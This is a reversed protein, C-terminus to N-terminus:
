GDNVMECKLVFDKIKTEKGRHNRRGTPYFAKEGTIGEVQPIFHRKLLGNGKFFILWVKSLWLNVVAHVSYTSKSFRQFKIDFFM